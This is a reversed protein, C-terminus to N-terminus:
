QTDRMKLIVERAEERVRKNWYGAATKLAMVAGPTGVLRLAQAAAIALDEAQVTASRGEAKQLYRGLLPLAKAGNLRAYSTLVAQKLELPADMLEPKRVVQEIALIAKEDQLKGLLRAAGTAVKTDPDSLLSSALFVAKERPFKEGQELLALRVQPLPHDRGAWLLDYAQPTGLNSLLHVAEVAVFAQDSTLLARVPELNEVGIELALDVFIRRQISDQFSPVMALVSPVARPGASRFFDSVIQTWELTRGSAPSSTVPRLRTEALAENLWRTVRSEAAEVSGLGRVAAVIQGARQLDGALLAMDFLDLLGQSINQVETVDDGAAIAELAAYLIRLYLADEDEGEAEKLLVPVYAPKRGLSRVPHFGAGEDDSDLQDAIPKAALDTADVHISRPGVDDNGQGYIAALLGDIQADVDVETGGGAAVGGGLAAAADTITTDVVVYHVHELDHSWLFSVIDDSLGSFGFGSATAQVLVDLEQPTLGRSFDIRRLGDRFFAFPISEDPNAEEFVRQDDFIFADPRVRLSVEGAKALLESFATNLDNM